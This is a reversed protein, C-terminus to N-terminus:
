ASRGHRRVWEDHDDHTHLKARLARAAKDAAEITSHYGGYYQHGNLSAYARWANERKSWSVGRVGSKNDTRVGTVHQMNQGNTVVRLHEPNVCKRNACRHDLFMGDPIHGNILEWSVRHALLVRHGVGFRGYGEASVFATWEWCGDTTEKNVKAAFRQRLTKPRLPSLNRGKQQQRYHGSCLDNGHVTNKCGAFTCTRTSKGM